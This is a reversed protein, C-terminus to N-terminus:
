RGSVSSCTYCYSGHSGRSNKTSSREEKSKSWRAWRKCSSLSYEKGTEGSVLGYEANLRDCIYKVPEAPITGAVAAAVQHTAIKFAAKYRSGNDMKATRIELRERSKQKSSKRSKSLTTSSDGATIGSALSLVSSPMTVPSLDKKRKSRNTKNADEDDDDDSDDHVEIILKKIEQEDRLKLVDYTGRERAMAVRSYVTSRPSITEHLRCAWIAEEVRLNNVIVQSHLFSSLNRQYLHQTPILKQCPGFSSTADTFRNVMIDIKHPAAQLSFCVMQVISDINYQKPPRGAKATATGDPNLKAKRKKTM